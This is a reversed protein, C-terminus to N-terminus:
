SGGPSQPQTSVKSSLEKLTNELRAFAGRAEGLEGLWQRHELSLQEHVAEMFDRLPRMGATYVAKRVADLRKSLDDLVRYTRGYREANRRDQNVAERMSAFSSLGTFITGLAAIAAFSAHLVGGLVGASGTAIAAGAVAWGSYSLTKEAEERHDKGRERYYALQVDLQFRRFYELHLLELPVYNKGTSKVSSKAVTDFYDLRATEASARKSMWAELLHGQRITLLDKSALAGTVVSGLSLVVLLTTVLWAPLVTAAAATALVLAILVGTALVISNARKFIIKFKNQAVLAEQDENEYQRATAEVESSRLITALAPAKEGFEEAHSTPSIIYDKRKGRGITEIAENIAEEATM